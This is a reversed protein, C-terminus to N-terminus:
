NDRTFCKFRGEILSVAEEPSKAVGAIAGRSNMLALYKEQHPKPKESPKKVEICTFIGVTKGVMEQSIIVTKCGIIDSTGAPAGAIKTPHKLLLMDGNHSLVEGGWFNGSNIRLAYVNNKSLEILIQAQIDQEKM